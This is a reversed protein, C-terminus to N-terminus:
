VTNFNHEMATIKGVYSQNELHATNQDCVVLLLCMHEYNINHGMVVKVMPTTLPNLPLKVGSGGYVQNLHLLSSTASWCLTTFELDYFLLTYYASLKIVIEWLIM